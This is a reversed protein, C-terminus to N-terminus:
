NTNRLSMFEASTAELILLMFVEFYAPWDKFTAIYVTLKLNSLKNQSAPFKFLDQVFVTM